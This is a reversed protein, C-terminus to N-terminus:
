HTLGTRVFNLDCGQLPSEPEGDTFLKAFQENNPVDRSGILAQGEQWGVTSMFATWIDAVPVNLSAGVEKAAEAYTKALQATRSPHPTDKAIDFDELQYENIPPPTIIIIRPDQAKTAPHQIIKQLNEKYTALPVHQIHSPM